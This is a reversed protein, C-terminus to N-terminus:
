ILTPLGEPISGTDVFEAKIPVAQGELFSVLNEGNLNFQANLLEPTAYEPTGKPKLKKKHLKKRKDWCHGRIKERIWDVDLTEGPAFTAYKEIAKREIFVVM